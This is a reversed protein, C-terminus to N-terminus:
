LKPKKAEQKADWEQMLKDYKPTSVEFNGHDISGNSGKFDVKLNSLIWTAYYVEFKTGFANRMVQKRFRTPKGYKAKLTAMVEQQVDIGDTRVFVSEVNGDIVSATPGNNIGIVRMFHPIQDSPLKMQNVTEGSARTYADMGMSCMEKYDWYNEGRVTTCDPVTLQEGLKIGFVSMDKQAGAFSLGSLAFLMLLILLPRKFLFKCQRTVAKM